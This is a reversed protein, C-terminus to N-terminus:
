VSVNFDITHGALTKRAKINRLDKMVWRELLYDLVCDWFVQPEADAWVQLQFYVLSQAAHSFATLFSEMQFATLVPSVRASGPLQSHSTSAAWM